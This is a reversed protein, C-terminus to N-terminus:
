RENADEGAKAHAIARGYIVAASCLWVVNYIQMKFFAIGCAGEAAAQERVCMPALRELDM